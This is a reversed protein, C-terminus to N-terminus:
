IVTGGEGRFFGTCAGVCLLTTKPKVTNPSSSVYALSISLFDTIKIKYQKYKLGLKRIVITKNIFLFKCEATFLLYVM